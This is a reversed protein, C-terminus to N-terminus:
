NGLFDIVNYVTYIYILHLLGASRSRFYIYIIYIYLLRRCHRQICIPLAHFLLSVSILRADMRVCVSVIMQKKYHSTPINLRVTDSYIVARIENKQYPRLYSIFQLSMLIPDRFSNENFYLSYLLAHSRPARKRAHENLTWPLCAPALLLSIANRLM